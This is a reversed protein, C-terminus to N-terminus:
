PRNAGVGGHIRTGAALADVQSPPAVPSVITAVIGVLRAAAARVVACVVVLEEASRVVEAESAGGAAPYAAVAIAVACVAAVLCAARCTADPLPLAAGSLANGPSPPHNKKGPQEIARCFQHM